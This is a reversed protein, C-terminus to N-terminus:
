YPFNKIHHIEIPPKKAKVKHIFEEEDLSVLVSGFNIAVQLYLSDASYVDYQAGTLGAKVCFGEDCPILASVMRLLTNVEDEAAKLGINRGVANGVETLVIAPEVLFFDAGVRAILGGCESSYTEDGKIKSIFINSDLTIPRLRKL